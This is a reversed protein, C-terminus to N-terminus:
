AGMRRETQNYNEIVKKFEEISFDPFLTKTFYFQANAIDWMMVGSSLHTWNNRENGTRIVLDVPPLNETWLNNKILKEDIKLEPHKIKLEVIKEIATIMEDIGSYALLFTLQYDQYNKTEEVLQKIINKLKEPLLEHWRGLVNIKIYKKYIKKNIILKKFWREFIDFLFNIEEPSRKILNDLSLVWFTFNQIKMDLATKFIKEAAKVGQQYGFFPHLKRKKAWRRNGDPIILIHNPINTM